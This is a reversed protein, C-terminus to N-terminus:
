NEFVLTDEVIIFWNNGKKQFQYNYKKGDPSVIALYKFKTFSLKKNFIKYNTPKKQGVQASIGCLQVWKYNKQDWGYLVVSVIQSSTMNQLRIGKKAGAPIQKDTFVYVGPADHYPLPQEDINTGKTFISIELRGFKKEIKYQYDFKSDIRFGIACIRGIIGM